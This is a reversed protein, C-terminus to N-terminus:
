INMQWVFLTFQNRQEMVLPLYFQYFVAISTNMKMAEVVFVEEDEEVAAGVEIHVYREAREGYKRACREYVGAIVITAPASAIWRQGAAAALDSRQDGPRM